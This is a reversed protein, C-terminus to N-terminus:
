SRRMRMKPCMPLSFRPKKVPPCDPATCFVMLSLMSFISPMMAWSTDLRTPAARSSTESATSSNETLPVNISFLMVALSVLLLAAGVLNSVDHAIIGEMKEINDSMTKQVAGSQGGTFFGLNLKGM